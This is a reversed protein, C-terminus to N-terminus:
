ASSAGPPDRRQHRQLVHRAVVRRLRAHRDDALLESHLQAVGNVAHAGLTALNAMRVFREGREDILSMRALDVTTGPFGRGCRTWSGATSRTSSRWTGRCCGGFLPVPWKELAEPLLTHNTYACAHRTVHWATDWGM